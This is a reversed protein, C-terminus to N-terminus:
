KFIPDWCIGKHLTLADPDAPGVDLPHHECFSSPLARSCLSLPQLPVAAVRPVGLAALLGLLWSPAPSPKGSLRWLSLWGSLVQMGFRWSWFESLICKQKVDCLKPYNPLGAWSVLAVILAGSRKHTLFHRSTLKFWSMGKNGMSRASKKISWSVALHEAAVKWSLLLASTLCTSQIKLDNTARRTIFLIPQRWQAAAPLRQQQHLRCPLPSVPWWSLVPHLNLIVGAGNHKRTISGGLENTFNTIRANLFYEPM